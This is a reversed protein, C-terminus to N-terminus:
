KNIPSYINIIHKIGNNVQATESYKNEMFDWEYERKNKLKAEMTWEAHGRLYKLANLLKLSTSVEPDPWDLSGKPEEIIIEYRFFSSKFDKCRKAIININRTKSNKAMSSIINQIGILINSTNTYVNRNDIKISFDIDSYKKIVDKIKNELNTHSSGFRYKDKLDRLNEYLPHSNDIYPHKKENKLKKYFDNSDSFFTDNLDYRITHPLYNKWTNYFHHCNHYIKKLDITELNKGSRFEKSIDLNDYDHLFGNFLNDDNYLKYFEALFKPQLFRHFLTIEDRKRKDKLEITNSPYTGLELIGYIKKYYEIKESYKDVEKIKKLDKKIKTFTSEKFGFDQKIKNIKNIHNKEYDTIVLQGSKILELDQIFRKYVNSDYGKIFGVFEIKGKLMQMFQYEKGEKLSYRRNKNNFHPDRQYHNLSNIINKNKNQKKILENYEIRNLDGTKYRLEEKDDEFLFYKQRKLQSKIGFTKVNFLTARLNRIYKKQLNVKKNVVLGTVIQRQGQTLLRTKKNNLKFGENEVTKKLESMLKEFDSNSNTSFTMDDAYRSYSLKNKLAWQYLRSDLRRCILNSIIPSSPAGQPLIGNYTALNSLITSVLPSFNFPWSLFMGNIRGWNISPFFDEIDFTMIFKKREHIECHNKISQNRVFAKATKHTELNNELALLLGRQVFKLSRSPISLKRMGGRKKPIEVERYLSSKNESGILYKLLKSKVPNNVQTSLLQSTLELAQQYNLKGKINVIGTKKDKVSVSGSYKGFIKVSSESNKCNEFAIKNFKKIKETLTIAM